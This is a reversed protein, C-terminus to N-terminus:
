NTEKTKFLCLCLLGLLLSVFFWGWYFPTTSLCKVYSKVIMFLAYVTSISSIAGLGGFLIAKNEKKKLYAWLLFAGLVALFAGLLALVLYDENFSVDTGWGDNYSSFSLIYFSLFCAFAGLGLVLVGISLFM